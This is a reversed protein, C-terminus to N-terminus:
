VKLMSSLSFLVRNMVIVLDTVLLRSMEGDWEKVAGGGAEETDLMLGLETDLGSNSVFEMGAGSFMRAEVARSETQPWDEM